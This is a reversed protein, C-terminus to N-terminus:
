GVKAVLLADGNDDATLGYDQNGIRVIYKWNGVRSAFGIVCPGQGNKMYHEPPVLALDATSTSVFVADIAGKAGIYTSGVITKTLDNSKGPESAMKMFAELQREARTEEFNAALRRARSDDRDTYTKLFEAVEPDSKAIEVEKRRSEIQERARKLVENCAKCPCGDRDKIIAEWTEVFGNVDRFEAVISSVLKKVETLSALVIDLRDINRTSKAGMAIAQIIQQVTSIVGSRIIPGAETAHRLRNGGLEDLKKKLDYIFGLLEPGYGVKMDKTQEEALKELQDLLGDVDVKISALEGPPVLEATFPAHFFAMIGRQLDPPKPNNGWCVRGDKHINPLKLPRGVIQGQLESQTQYMLFECHTLLALEPRVPGQGNSQQVVFM